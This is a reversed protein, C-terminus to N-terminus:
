FRCRLQLDLDTQASHDIQQLGSSICSRDFYDTTGLKAILMLNASIDARINLAYRIGEGSFSPFSFNYLTGREYTYVRSDYDDTNFYGISANLTLWRHSYGINESLMYGFSSSGSECYAVDTQTKTTWRGGDYAFSLRGRQETRNMLGSGDANDKQKLKIRYRALFTVRKRQYAMSILNDWAHSADNILYKPWPFYAYDTYAMLSFTRSPHWNAGVYIGSENQVSGGESFSQSYLSYYRYSYFRQLAMLSLDGTLQYSLSNITALAHSDGTATEGNVTLRRSVYGYDASVNWFEKGAPYYRRFRQDTNPQLSRDFSTFFGTAGIHFGSNFYHINGGGLFESANHKRDMESQTRHYGSTLITAISSSDGNLTADIDRYSAFATLDLGRAVTVTAAAGQLYNGESRSSHAHISNASRGLTALTAIKGFGFDNNLILGMGFRLRYRGVALAKLRGMRRIMLYLSYYDYGASNRGAFFPEGADQSAVAGLKVYQGYQFTYKLWHKYQYGLYGDKDGAREYFPVRVTAVAENRGYKTLDSWTPFTKGSDDNLTTFYTLLKQRNADLSSILALEGWSKMGGYKYIYECLDQIQQDDLFPLTELEERTATNLNIPHTELECLEDYTNEWSESEADEIDGLQDYYKEWEQRQQAHISLLLFLSIITLTLKKM